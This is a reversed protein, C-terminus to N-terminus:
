AKDLKWWTIEHKNHHQHVVQGGLESAFRATTAFDTPGQFKITCVFNRVGHQEWRKVLDLLREPYCIIDSFFWDVRPLRAPDLGFASEQLVQVRPLEAIRPELPAKDVATIKGGFSQLVWTWGGPCAGMDLLHEDSRPLREAHCTFFEWLKLYARSPPNVHDEIFSMEGLPYLSTTQTSALILNPDWLTWGGMSASPRPALFPLEKTAYHPLQEQILQARRYHGTSFLAWNRGKERLKKAGMGISDIPIEEVNIWSSQAWAMSQYPGAGLFLRGREESVDIGKLGLETRLDNEHGDPALYLSKEM